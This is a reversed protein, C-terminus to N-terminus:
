GARRAELPAYVLRLHFRDAPAHDGTERPLYSVRDGDIHRRLPLLRDDRFGIRRYFRIAHQNDSFVPLWVRAPRLTAEAWGLLARLAASMIGSSATRSGRVVNDVKVERRDNLAQALGLHGIPEGRPDLVLFLLRDEVDLVKTRLWDATGALTVPFQTPYAFMNAARWEALLEVLRGDGAHLECLPVLSGDPGAFRIARTELDDARYTRKLLAFTDRVARQYDAIEPSM